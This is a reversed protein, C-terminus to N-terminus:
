RCTILELNTIVYGVFLVDVGGGGGGGGGGNEVVLGWGVGLVKIEGEWVGWWV